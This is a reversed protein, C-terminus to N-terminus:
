APPSEADHSSIALVAPLSSRNSWAHRTGRQVVTDGARLVVDATDLVLTLEGELVVCLDLSRSQQMYLHRAGPGCWIHASGAAVFFARAAEPSVDSRWVHDPPVTVIRFLAGGPPPEIFGPLGAVEEATLGIAPSRDTAWVRASEFGTRAPDRLVDEVPGDSLALSRGDPGDATVIRRVPRNAITQMM